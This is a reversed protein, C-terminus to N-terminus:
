RGSPMGPVPRVHQVSLGHVDRLVVVERNLASLGRLAAHLLTRRHRLVTRDEPGRASEPM